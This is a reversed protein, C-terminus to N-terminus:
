TQEIQEEEVCIEMQESSQQLEIAQFPNFQTITEVLTTAEDDVKMAKQEDLENEQNRWNQEMSLM